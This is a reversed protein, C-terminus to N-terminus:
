RPPSPCRQCCVTGVKLQSACMSQASAWIGVFRESVLAASWGPLQLLVDVYGALSPTPKLEVHVHMICSAMRWQYHGVFGELLRARLRRCNTKGFCGGTTPASVEPSIPRRIKRLGVRVFRKDPDSGGV